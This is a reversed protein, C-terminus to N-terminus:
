DSGRWYSILAIGYGIAIPSMIALIVYSTWDSGTASVSYNIVSTFSGVFLILGGCLSAIIYSEPSSRTLIGVIIGTVTASGFVLAIAVFFLSTDISQQPDALGVWELISNTATPIGMLNLVLLMGVSLVAYMYVKSM